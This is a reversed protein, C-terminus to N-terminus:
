QAKQDAKAPRLAIVSEYGPVFGRKGEYFKAIKKMDAAQDGTLMM